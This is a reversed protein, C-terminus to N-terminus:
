RSQTWERFRAHIRAARAEIRGWDGTAIEEPQFLSSVFGVGFAGAELIAIFNDESVGATPFIRLEPLPGRIQRIFKPLDHPEPFVKVLDAGLETAIFMETPTYTGPISPVDLDNAEDLVEDDTVPSVLFRAGATVAQRADRRSLVTGAGVLLRAGDAGDLRSFEEILDLAGPTTLTFEIMRFGGSVAARMAQRAQDEDDTRIIASLKRSGIEAITGARASM